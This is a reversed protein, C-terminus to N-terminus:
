KHNNDCKTITNRLWVADDYASADNISKIKEDYIIITKNKQVELSDIQIELIYQKKILM